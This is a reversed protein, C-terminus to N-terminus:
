KPPLKPLAATAEYAPPRDTAELLAKELVRRSQFARFNIQDWVEQLQNMEEISRHKHVGPPYRAQLTKRGQGWLRAIARFLAADGPKYWVEPIEEVSRYKRVPM